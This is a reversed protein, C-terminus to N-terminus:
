PLMLERLAPWLPGHPEFLRDLVSFHNDDPTEIVAVPPLGAASL